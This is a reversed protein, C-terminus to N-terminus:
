QNYVQKVLQVTLLTSTYFKIPFWSRVFINGRYVNRNTIIVEYVDYSAGLDVQWWASKNYNEGSLKLTDTHVCSEDKFSPNRDGDVAKDATSYPLHTGSQSAPKGLAVNETKNLYFTVYSQSFCSTQYRIM